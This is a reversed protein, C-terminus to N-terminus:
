FSLIDAMQKVVVANTDSDAALASLREYSQHGCAVLVCDAKMIEATDLDHDTDGIFLMEGPNDRRWKEAVEGKGSAYVDNKGLIEDFYKGVGLSEVQRKLMNIESASIIVQRVGNSHFYEMVERAGRCLPATKERALYEAVWENAVIDYDEADIGLKKFENKFTGSQEFLCHVKM